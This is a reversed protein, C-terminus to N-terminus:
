CREQLPLRGTLQLSYIVFASDAAPHAPLRTLAELPSLPIGLSAEVQYRVLCMWLFWKNGCSIGWVKCRGIVPELAGKTSRVVSPVILNNLSFVFPAQPQNNVTSM